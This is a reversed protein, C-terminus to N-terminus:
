SYGRQHKVMRKEAMQQEVAYLGRDGTAVLWDGSGYNQVDRDQTMIDEGATVLITTKFLCFM